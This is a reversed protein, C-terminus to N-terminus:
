AKAYVAAYIKNAGNQKLEKACERLTAGTTYVDDIILITKGNIKDKDIVAYVNKINKERDYKDLDHQKKNQIIKVLINNDYNMSYLESLSKCILESQNYGRKKKDKKTMPVPIVYDFPEEGIVTKIQNYIAEAMKAANYKVGYFKLNRVANEVGMDYGYVCIAMDIKSDSRNNECIADDIDYPKVFESCKNCSIKDYEIVENCFICRNPYIINILFSQIKNM